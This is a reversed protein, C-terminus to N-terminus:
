RSNTDDKKIWIKTFNYIEKKAKNIEEITSNIMLWYDSNYKPKNSYKKLILTIEKHLEQHCKRCLFFMEGKWEEKLFRSIEEPPNHHRDLGEYTLGSKWESFDKKNCKQCIM